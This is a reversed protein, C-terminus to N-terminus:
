MSSPDPLRRHMINELVTSSATARERMREPTLAQEDLPLDGTSFFSDEPTRCLHALYRAAASERSAKRDFLAVLAMGRDGRLMMASEICEKVQPALEEDPSTAVLVLDAEATRHSAAASIETLRLVDFSWLNNEVEVDEGIGATLRRLLAAARRACVVDRYFLVIRLPLSADNALRAAHSGSVATTNMSFITAVHKANFM